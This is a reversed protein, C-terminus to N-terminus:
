AGETRPGAQSSIFDQLAQASAFTLTARYGGRHPRLAAPHGLCESLLATQQAQWRTQTPAGTARGAAAPQTTKIAAELQLVSWHQETAQRALATCRLHDPETLLARGHAKTLTRRRLLELVPGPLDLLRLTNSIEPRSRGVHDALAQVSIGSERLVTAYAHAEDVPDLDERQLNEALAALASASHTRVIVQLHTLGAIGAARCRREGAILEYTGDHREQVLPPQLVGLQKVSTALSQLADPDFTRRPQGPNPTIQALPVTRLQGGHALQTYLAATPVAAGAPQAGLAARATPRTRRLAPKAM